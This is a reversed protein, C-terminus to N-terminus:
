TPSCFHNHERHGLFVEPKSLVLTPSSGAVQRPALPGLNPALACGAQSALPFSGVDRGFTRQGRDPSRGM